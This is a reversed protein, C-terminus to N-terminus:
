PCGSYGPCGSNRWGCRSCVTITSDATIIPFVAGRIFSCFAAAPQVAQTFAVVLQLGFGFVVGLGHDRHPKQNLLAQVKIILQLKPFTFYTKGSVSIRTTSSM